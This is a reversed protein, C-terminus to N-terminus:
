VESELCREEYLKTQSIGKIAGTAARAANYQIHEIKTCFSENNAQDYVIDYYDLRPRTFSKNITLFSNRPLLNSLRKIIGIGKNATSVEWQHLSQFKIKWWSVIWPTEPM